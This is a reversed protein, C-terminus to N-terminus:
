KNKEDLKAQYQKNLMSTAITSANRLLTIATQGHTKLESLPATMIDADNSDIDKPYNVNLSTTDDYRLTLILEASTPDNEGSQSIFGYREVTLTLPQSTTDMLVNATAAQIMARIDLGAIRAKEDIEKAIGEDIAVGIAIGMAGMSSMMMIGAGAGQGSFRVRDPDTIVVDIQPTKPRTAACGCLTAMIIFYAAFKLHRRSLHSTNMSKVNM